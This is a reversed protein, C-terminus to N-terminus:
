TSRNGESGRKKLAESIRKKHEASKPKGKNGKGGLHAKKKARESYMLKVNDEGHKDILRQYPSKYIGMRKEYEIRDEVNELATGWYLHKPNSCKGNNCAHCLLITKHPITTNLVYALLGKFHTSNGGVEICNDELNIHRQRDEKSLKIYETIQIREM